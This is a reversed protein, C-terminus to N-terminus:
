AGTVHFIYANGSSYLYEYGGFRAEVATKAEVYTGKAPRTLEFTRPTISAYSSFPDCPIVSRMVGVGNYWVTTRVRCDTVMVTPYDRRVVDYIHFRWKSATSGSTAQISSSLMGYQAVIESDDYPWVDAAASSASFGSAAIVFMAVTLARVARKRM